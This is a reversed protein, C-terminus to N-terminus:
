NFKFTLSPKQELSQFSGNGKLRVGVDPYIANGEKLSARVYKRPDVKLSELSGAPLEIKLQIVKAQTFLDDTGEKKEAARSTQLIGCILGLVWLNRKWM